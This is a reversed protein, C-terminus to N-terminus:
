DQFWPLSDSRLSNQGTKHKIYTNIENLRITAQSMTDLWKYLQAPPQNSYIGTDDDETNRQCENLNNQIRLLREAVDMSQIPHSQTEGPDPIYQGPNDRVTTKVSAEVALGISRLQNSPIKHMIEEETLNLVEERLRKKDTTTKEM